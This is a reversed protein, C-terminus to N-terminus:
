PLSQSTASPPQEELGQALPPVQWGWSPSPAPNLHTSPPFVHFVPPQAAAHLGPMGSLYLRTSGEGGTHERPCMAPINCEGPLEPGHQRSEAARGTRGALGAGAPSLAPEAKGHGGARCAGPSLPSLPTRSGHSTHPPLPCHSKPNPDPQRLPASPTPHPLICGQPRQQERRPQQAATGECM